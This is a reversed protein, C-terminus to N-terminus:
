KNKSNNKVFNIEYNKTNSYIEDVNQNVYDVLKVPDYLNNNLEIGKKVLDLLMYALMGGTDVDKGKNKLWYEKFEDDVNLRIEYFPVYLGYEYNDNEIDQVLIEDTTYIPINIQLQKLINKFVDFDKYKGAFFVADFKYDRSHLKLQYELDDDLAGNYNIRFLWEFSNNQNNYRELATSFIDGYTNSSPSIILLKKINKGEIEKLYSSVWVNLPLFLSSFNDDDLKPLKESKVTLPSILPVGSFHTLTRVSPILASGYPAVCVAIDKKSCSNQIEALYAQEDNYKVKITQLSVKKNAIGGKHNIYDVVIGFGEAVQNEVYYSVNDEYLVNILNFTQSKNVAEIRDSLLGERYEHNFGLDYDVIDLKVCLVCFLSITLAAILLNKYM